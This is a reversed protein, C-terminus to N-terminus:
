ESLGEERETLTKRCKEFHDWRNLTRMKFTFWATENGYVTYRHEMNSDMRRLMKNMLIARQYFEDGGRIYNRGMEVCRRDANREVHYVMLGLIILFNALAVTVCTVGVGSAVARSKKLDMSASAAFWLLVGSTAGLTLATLKWKFMDYSLEHLTRSIAYRQADESLLLTTALSEALSESPFALGAAKLVRVMEHLQADRTEADDSSYKFNIPVGVAFGRANGLYGTGSVRGVSTSFFPDAGAVAGPKDPACKLTEQRVMEELRATLPFPVRTQLKSDVVHFEQLLKIKEPCFKEPLFSLGTGTFITATALKLGYQRFFQKM